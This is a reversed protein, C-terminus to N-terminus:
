FSEFKIYEELEPLIDALEKIRDKPIIRNNFFAQISADLVGKRILENKLARAKQYETFIGSFYWYMNDSKIMSPTPYDSIVSSSLLQPAIAFRVRFTLGSSKAKFRAYATDRAVSAVKVEDEIVQLWAPNENFVYLELRNNLKQANPNKLHDFTEVPFSTGFSELHIREPAIGESELFEKVEEAKKMTFFLALDKPNVPSSHGSVRVHIEPFIVMMEYLNKLSKVNEFSLVSENDKFYLPSVIITKKTIASGDAAFLGEINEPKEQLFMPRSLIFDQDEVRDKMFALFLDYGGLAELRDSSFVAQGGDYSVRFHMDNRTSNIGPGMNVPRNWWGSELGFTARYIDFGGFGGLRDSSFYLEESGSTLFPTIEDYPTNISPGLNKPNQWAGDKKLMVYIDYGGFGGARLSSFLVTSDNYLFFDRDAKEAVFPSLFVEPTGVKSHLSDRYFIGNSKTLSQIYYIQDGSESLDQIYEHKTTNQLQNFPFFSTWNGDILEVAYMDSFYKGKLDNRLGQEDRMGGTSIDKNSSYLISPRESRGYICHTEDNVSNIINGMNEVFARQQNFKLKNGSECTKLRRIIDNRDPPENNLIRLYNKYHTAANIYDMQDFLSHATYLFTLPDKKGTKFALEMDQICKEPQNTYYYAIGRRVRTKKDIKKQREFLELAERYQGNDYYQNAQKLLSKQGALQISVLLFLLLLIEKHKCLMQDSLQKLLCFFGNV